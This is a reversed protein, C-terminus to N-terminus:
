AIGERRVATYGLLRLALRGHEDPAREHTSRPKVREASPGDEPTLIHRRYVDSESTKLRDGRQFFQFHIIAM